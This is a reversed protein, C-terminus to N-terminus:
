NYLSYVTDTCLLEIFRIMAPMELAWGFCWMINSFWLGGELVDEPLEVFVALIIRM